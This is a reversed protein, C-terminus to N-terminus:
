ALVGALVEAARECQEATVDLHTVARLTRPGFAMVLVNQDRVAAITTAADPADPRLDFVVINTAGPRVSLGPVAALRTSITAANRHDEALREVHHALAYSGAAALVGAQRMAGGLMRRHRVLVAGDEARGAMVSGSPCGLGKSLAVWALDFPAALDRPSEGTAVAANLLRAGDLVSAVGLERATAAVAELESREWVLGGMRNQTREAAVLTTPPYLMHNRPKVLAHVDAAGFRGDQGAVTFQVGSNAAGGGTEHWVMHSEVGVIMDDGPRCFLRLALQNAMTGTPVFLAAQKGLLTAVEDQLRNVSPDEGYQDDGVEAEAIARRMEPTPRTVADSRLDIM